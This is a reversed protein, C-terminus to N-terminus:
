WLLVFSMVINMSKRGSIAFSFNKIDMRLNGLIVDRKKHKKWEKSCDSDGFGSKASM